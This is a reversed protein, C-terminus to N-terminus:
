QKPKNKPQGPPPAVFTRGRPSASYYLERDSGYVFCPKGDNTVHSIPAAGLVAMTQEDMIAGTVMRYPRGCSLCCTSKRAAAAEEFDQNTAAILSELRKIDDLTAYHKDDNQGRKIMDAVNALSGKFKEFLREVLARDPRDALDRLIQEVIRRLDAVEKALAELAARDVGAGAGAL